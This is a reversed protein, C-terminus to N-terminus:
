RVGVGSLDTSKYEQTEAAKAKKAKPKLAEAVGQIKDGSYVVISSCLRALEEDGRIALTVDEPSIRKRSPKAAKTHQGAIDLIEAAVYEAVATMFVPATGGVRKTGAQTKLARNIRSIPFTLGAKSSKSTVKKKPEGDAGKAKAMTRAHALRIGISTHPTRHILSSLRDIDRQRTPIQM